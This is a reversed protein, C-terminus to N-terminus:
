KISNKSPYKFVIKPPTFGSRGWNKKVNVNRPSNELGLGFEDVERM